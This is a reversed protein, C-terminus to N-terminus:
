DRSQLNKESAPGSKPTKSLSVKRRGLYLTELQQFGEMPYLEEKPIEKLSMYCTDRRFPGLKLQELSSVRKLTKICQYNISCKDLNCNTVPCGELAALGKESLLSCGSLNVSYSHLGHPSSRAKEKLMHMLAILQRDKLQSNHSLDLVGDRLYVKSWTRCVQVFAIHDRLYGLIKHSLEPPLGTWDVHTDRKAYPALLGSDQTHLSLAKGTSILSSLQTM